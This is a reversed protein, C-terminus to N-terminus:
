RVCCAQPMRVKVKGVTGPERRRSRCEQQAAVSKEVSLRPTSRLPIKCQPEATTIPEEADANVIVYAVRVGDLLRCGRAAVFARWHLMGRQKM